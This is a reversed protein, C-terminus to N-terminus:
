LSPSMIRRPLGVIEMTRQASLESKQPEQTLAGPIGISRFFGSEGWLGREMFSLNEPNSQLTEEQRSHTTDGEAMAQHSWTICVFLLPCLAKMISKRINHSPNIEPGNKACSIEV